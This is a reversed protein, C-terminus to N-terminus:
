SPKLENEQRHELRLVKLGIFTLLSLILFHQSKDYDKELFALTMYVVSALGFVIETVENVIKWFKDM